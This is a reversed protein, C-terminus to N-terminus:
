GIFEQLQEPEFPWGLEEGTSVKKLVPIRAGYQHYYERQEKVNIQTLQQSNVGQQDLMEKALDCLHCDTGSYLILDNM